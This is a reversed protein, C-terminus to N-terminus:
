DETLSRSISDRLPKTLYQFLTREGTRIMVEVGMGPTIRGAVAAPISAEDLRIKALYYPVRTAPDTLRDASVTIVTGEVVDVTRQSFATLRVRAPLGTAVVDIDNPDVRAEVILPDDDPVLSMIEQGPAIVGGVTFVKLGVVIGDAGATVQTRKLTTEAERLRERFDFVQDDVERLEGVVESLFQVQVDQSQLKTEGIRQKGRAISARALAQSKDIEAQARQLSLLRSQRELGKDVLSSVSKIEEDILESQRTQAAVQADLGALEAHLQGVRQKLIDRQSTLGDRRAQFIRMQGTISDLVENNLLEPDTFDFDIGDQGDREARLRAALARSAVLRANLITQMMQAKATDMTILPDGASVHSGERVHIATILGGELHQVMQQNGQLSIVGPAVAASDLPAIGAAAGFLGFFVVVIGVGYILSARSVAPEARRAALIEPISPSRKASIPSLEVM